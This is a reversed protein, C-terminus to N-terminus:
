TNLALKGLKNTESIIEEFAQSEPLYIEVRTGIIQGNDDKLEYPGKIKFNEHTLKQYLIIRDNTLSVGKSDHIHDKGKKNKLSQKVGIGDDDITFKISGSLSREISVSIHGKRDAPLIGHWISNELFPQLLMSPIKVSEPNVNDSIKIKYDFKDQFRMHELSLYLDIRELENSLYTLNEQSSDLNKRILKAFNSLYKNASLKDQRNIYYQISNLANFIFHRNMSSNLSQQELSLIRSQYVLRQSEIKRMQIKRRWIWISASILLALITLALFFWNSKYYPALIEFAYTAPLTSREGSQSLAFIEFQYNGHPLYPFSVFSNNKLRFFKEQLGKLRYEYEIANPNKLSIGSIDFTIHNENPEFEHIGFAAKKGEKRDIQEDLFVRINKIHVPPPPSIVNSLIHKLDAVVLGKGTGFLLQDKSDLAVANLNCELSPLGDDIGFHKISNPESNQYKKTDLVYLGNNTGVILFQEHLLNFNIYNSSFREDLRLRHFTSGNFFFLGDKTGLWLNDDNDVSINLVSNNNFNNEQSVKSFADNYFKFLGNEAGMWINGKQDEKISRIRSGFFRKKETFNKFEGNELIRVGLKHGIWIRQKSDEFLATIRNGGQAISADRFVTIEDDVIKNLNSSTGFWINNQSDQIGAWVTNDSLGIEENYSEIIGQNIKCVGNNFSGMWISGNHDEFISLAQESCLQNDGYFTFIEEGAFRYIGEGNSAMWINGELDSYIAKIDQNELGNKSTFNIIKDSKIKSVGTKTALWINGEEDQSISKLRNSILGNETDYKRITEEVVYLGNYTAIWIINQNDIFIDQISIDKLEAFPMDWKEEEPYYKYLGKRCGIWLFNDQSFISKIDNFPFNQIRKLSDRFHCWLGAKDSGLWIKEKNSSHISTIKADSYNASFPYSLVLGNEIISLGGNAGAYVKNNEYFLTHIHNDLLGNEKSLNEFERGDFVSLGGLTSVWLFGKEDQVIDTAQSQALGDQISYNIFSYRQATIDCFFFVLLLLFLTKKHWM